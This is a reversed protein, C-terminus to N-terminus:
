RIYVKEFRTSFSTLIEYAITGAQKALEQLNINEGIIEVEDGIKIEGKSFKSIDIMCSDMSIRGLIPVIKNKLQVYGRNTLSRPYGDAYGIPITALEMNKSVPCINGYGVMGNKEIEKIHIIKSTLKIANEMPNDNLYPAPNIGFLAAGPRTMELHYKKNLFIASSNAITKPINPFHKAIELFANLQEDNRINDFENSCALHSMIFRIDLNKLIKKSNDLLFKSKNATIGLRNIGTDFHLIAPLTKQVKAASKNYIDVQELDNLVPTLNNEIFAETEDKKVGHFIYINCDSLINRLFLAEGLTAVFFDRCGIKYLAMSIEKVGLGYADAKLTACCLAPYSEKQLKLYNNQIAKLNIQLTADFFSSAYM